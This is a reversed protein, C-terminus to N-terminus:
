HTTPTPGAPAMAVGLQQAKAFRDAMAWISTVREGAVTFFHVGDWVVTLGTAPVPGWPGVHTATARWRVAVCSGDSVLAVVEYTTGAWVERERRHWEALEDVTERRGDHDVVPALCRDLDEIRGENWIRFLERVVDEAAV